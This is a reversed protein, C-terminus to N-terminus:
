AEENMLFIQIFQDELRRYEQDGVRCILFFVDSILQMPREERIIRALQQFLRADQQDRQSLSRGRIRLYDSATLIQLATAPSRSFMVMRFGDLSVTLDDNVASFFGFTLLQM